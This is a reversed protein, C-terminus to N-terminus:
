KTDPFMTKYAPPAESLGSFGSNMYVHQTEERNNNPMQGDDHQQQQPQPQPQQQPSRFQRERRKSRKVVILIVVALIVVGVGVVVGVVVGGHLVCRDEASIQYPGSCECRHFGNDIVCKQREDRFNCDEDYLCNDWIRACHKRGERGVQRYHRDCECIGSDCVEHIQCAGYRYYCVNGVYGQSYRVFLHGCLLLLLLVNM